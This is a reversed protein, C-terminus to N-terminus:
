RQLPKVRAPVPGIVRCMDLPMGRRLGYRNVRRAVTCPAWVAAAAASAGDGRAPLVLGCGSRSGWSRSPRAASLAEAAEGRAKM